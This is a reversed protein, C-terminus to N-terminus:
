ASAQIDLDALEKLNKEIKSLIPGSHKCGSPDPTLFENRYLMLRLIEIEERLRDLYSYEVVCELLASSMDVM